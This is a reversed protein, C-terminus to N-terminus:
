RVHWQVNDLASVILLSDEHLGGVVPEVHVIEPLRLVFKGYLHVPLAQHGVTHMQDDRRLGLRFVYGFAHSRKGCTLRAVYARIM